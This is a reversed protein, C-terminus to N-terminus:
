GPHPPADFAGSRPPAFGDPVRITIANGQGPTRRIAVEGGLLAVLRRTLALGHHGARAETAGGTAGHRLGGPDSDEPEDGLGPGDDEVLFVVDNRHEGAERGVSITVNGNAALRAAVAAVHAVAHRVKVRDSTIEGAAEAGRVMLRNRRLAAIPRVLADVEDCLERVPFTELLVKSTGAEAASLELVDDLLDRLHRGAGGLARVGRALGDPTGPRRVEEELRECYRLLAGLPTRVEHVVAAAHAQGAATARAAEEALVALRSETRRRDAEQEAARAELATVEAALRRTRFRAAAGVLLAAALVYVPFTWPSRWPPPAVSFPFTAEATEVGAGDLGRVRLVYDGPPVAAFERRFDATWPALGEELGDLRTRYRSGAEREDTLLAYEFVLHNEDHRLREGPALPKERGVVRASEFVLPKAAEAAEERALELVGLGGVSGAWLRGQRDVHAAFCENSPLGDDVGYVLVPRGALAESGDPAPGLRALGRNTLLFVRGRGDTAIQNVSRGPLAPTTRDSLVELRPPRTSPDIRVAGGRTAAWLWAGGGARRELHLSSVADDPFGSRTDLVGFAGDELWALGGGLTGIWLVRRGDTEFTEALSTVVNDPLGREATWTEVRDGSLRALGGHTGIWLADGSPLLARVRDNPLGDAGTWRRVSAGALRALGGETGVWLADGRKDPAVALANVEADPLGAARGLVTFRGESFRLLGADTGVWFASGGDAQRTERIARIAGDPLGSGADLTRFAGFRIRVVGGGDTGLWVPDGTGRGRAIALAGGTPVPYSAAESPGIRYLGAGLTAVWLARGLSGEIELLANVTVRPLRGDDEPTLWGSPSLVYLGRRTGVFLRTGGGPADAELLSKVVPRPDDGPAPIATLSGEELLALGATTGVWLAERDKSSRAPALATVSGSPLGNERQWRTWRGGQLRFLGQGAMGAWVSATGDARRTEALSLVFDAPGPLAPVQPDFAGDRYRLLGGGETGIWLSGDSAALLARVSRSGSSAPLPFERFARGNWTGLGDRTGVWLYGRTDIALAQATNQPLGDRDTFARLSPRALAAPDGRDAAAASAALALLLACLRRM